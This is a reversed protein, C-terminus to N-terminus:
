QMPREAPMNIKLAAHFESLSLGRLAALSLVIMLDAMHEASCHVDNAYRSLEDHIPKELMVTTSVTEHRHDALKIVKASM